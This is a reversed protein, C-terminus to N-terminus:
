GLKGMNHKVAAYIASDILSILTFVGGIVAMLDIIFDYLSEGRLQRYEVTVPSFDFRFYVSSSFTNTVVNSSVTFQNFPVSAESGLELYSSWVVKLYYEHVALGDTHKSEFNDLPFTTSPNALRAATDDGFSL